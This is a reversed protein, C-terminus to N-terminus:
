GLREFEVWFTAGHGLESDVGISGGMREVFARAIALGLGTGTQERTSSADTREFAEFIRAQDTPAIGPGQDRVEARVRNGETRIEVVVVGEPPSYKMANSMLNTLVQGLREGDVFVMDREGPARVEISVGPRYTALRAAADTCAKHLRVTSMTMDIARGSRIRQLDLLDDVLAGLRESNRQAIDLLEAQKVPKEGLVGATLLSLAGRISTLPTRLEHSVTSVFQDKLGETAKRPGIDRISGAVRAVKGTPERVPAARMQVWRAAGAAGVLRLEVDIPRGGQLLDYVARRAIEVDEPDVQAEDLPGSGDRKAEATFGLLGLYRGSYYTEGREIDWDFLGDSTGEAIRQLLRREEDLEEEIAERNREFVMAAGYLGTILVILALGRVLTLHDPATPMADAFFMLSGVGLLSVAALLAGAIRGAAFTAVVPCMALALLIPSDVGALASATLTCGVCFGTGLMTVTLRIRRTLRLVLPTSFCIVATVLLWRRAGPLVGLQQERLLAGVVLAAGIAWALLVLGVARGVYEADERRAPPVAWQLWAHRPSGDHRSM